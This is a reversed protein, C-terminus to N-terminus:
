CRIIEVMHRSPHSDYSKYDQGQGRIKESLCFRYVNYVITWVLLTGGLCGLAIWNMLIQEKAVGRGFINWCVNYAVGGIMILMWLTPVLCQSFKYDKGTKRPSTGWTTDFLLVIASLKCALLGFMYLFGYIPFLLFTANKSLICALISKFFGVYFVTIFMVLMNFISGHFFIWCFGFFVIFPYLTNFALEITMFASQRGLYTLTILQERYFSKCWRTQQTFWRVYSEPTETLCTARHTFKVKKGTKLILNTLHRDDGYTCEAGMFCQTIWFPLIFDLSSKRYIGLPGSVCGVCGWYSQSAREINFAVYYRLSSLFALVSDERNLIGVDGCAAGIEIDELVHVLESMSDEHLMTDSDTVMICDVKYMSFARFGTYMAHRKGKHPQMILVLRRASLAEDVMTTFDIVREDLADVETLLFDNRIIAYDYNSFVQEFIDVMYLDDTDNGDVVVVLGAYNDHSLHLTSLLCQRFLEPSERYGVILLGCSLSTDDPWRQSNAKEVALRNLVAFLAQAIYYTFVVCGYASVALVTGTSISVQTIKAVVVIGVLITATFLAYLIKFITHM